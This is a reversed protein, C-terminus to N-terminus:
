PTKPKPKPTLAKIRAEALKATPTEPYDEIAKRYYPIAEAPHGAIEMGKGTQFIVKAKKDEAATKRADMSAKIDVDRPRTPPVNEGRRRVEDEYARTNEAALEATSKGADPDPMAEPEPTIVKETVRCVLGEAVFIKRGKFKGDIVRLEAVKHDAIFRNDHVELVLVKTDAPLMGARGAKNLEELGLEDGAKILKWMEGYSIADAANPIEGIEGAADTLEAHDGIKVHGPDRVKVTKPPVDESWAPAASVVALTLAGLIRIAISM